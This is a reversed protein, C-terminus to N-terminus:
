FPHHSPAGGDSFIFINNPNWGKRWAGLDSLQAWPCRPGLIRPAPLAGPVHPSMDSSHSPKPDEMQEHFLSQKAFIYYLWGWDYISFIPDRSIWHHNVKGDIQPHSYRLFKLFSVYADWCLIVFLHQNINTAVKSNAEWQDNKSRIRPTQQDFEWRPDLQTQSRNGHFQHSNKMSRGLCLAYNFIMYIYIYMGLCWKPM